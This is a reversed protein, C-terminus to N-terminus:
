KTLKGLQQVHATHTFFRKTLYEGLESLANSIKQSLRALDLRTEMTHPGSPSAKLEPPTPHSLTADDIDAILLLDLCEQIAKRHMSIGESDVELLADLHADLQVLQFVMSRPNSQDQLLLDLVPGIEVNMLYRYRYTISSDMIDLMAELLPTLRPYVPVLLQNVLRLQHQM